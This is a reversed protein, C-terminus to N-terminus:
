SAELLKALRRQFRIRRMTLRQKELLEARRPGLRAAAKARAKKDRETQFMAQRHTCRKTAYVRTPEAPWGPEDSYDISM